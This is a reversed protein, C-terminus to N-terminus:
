NPNSPIAFSFTSGKGKTSEVWLNGGHRKVIETSVYLGIGLGSTADRHSGDVQYFRQFIKKQNKRDIGIGYDKIKVIAKRNDQALNVIVKNAQPSYKIANNILNILVQGIRDKDGSVKGAKGRIEISHNKATLQIAEVVEKTLELIDFYENKFELKGLQMKSTDLLDRILKNLKEVQSDMKFLYYNLDTNHQKEATQRLVQTYLKLSTIPTRLEHSAISIFEERLKTANQAKEFLRMNELALAIRSAVGGVLALDDKGYRRNTHTSSLTIAGIINGKVILPVGMYSKLNRTKFNKSTKEDVKPIIESEGKKIIKDVGNGADIMHKYNEYLKIKLNIKKSNNNDANIEKIKEDEELIVIRCYDALYNVIVKAVNQLAINYDFSLAITSNIKSIFEQRFEARKRMSIDTFYFSIADSLPYIRAEFWKNRRASYYDYKIPKKTVIAKKAKPYFTKKMHPFVKFINKGILYSKKHGLLKEANKNIYRYKWNFDIIEFSESMNEIAEVLPRHADEQIKDSIIPIRKNKM